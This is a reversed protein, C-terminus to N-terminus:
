PVKCARRHRARLLSLPSLPLRPLALSHHLSARAYYPFTVNFSVPLSLFTAPLSTKAGACVFFYLPPPPPIHTPATIPLTLATAFLCSLEQHGGDCCCACVLADQCSHAIPSGCLIQTRAVHNCTHSRACGTQGFHQTWFDQESLCPSWSTSFMYYLYVSQVLGLPPAWCSRCHPVCLQRCFLSLAQKGAQSHTSQRLLHNEKGQKFCVLIKHPM